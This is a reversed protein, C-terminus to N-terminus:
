VPSIATAQMGGLLCHMVLTLIFTKKVDTEVKKKKGSFM